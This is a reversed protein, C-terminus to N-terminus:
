FFFVTKIISHKRNSQFFDRRLLNEDLDLRKLNVLSDFVDDDLSSIKNKSLSLYELKNLKEFHRGKIEEIQNEDLYLFKLNRLSDFPIEDLSSIKNRMLKLIVIKDNLLSKDYNNWKGDNLNLEM